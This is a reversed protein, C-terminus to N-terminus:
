DKERADQLFKWLNTLLRDVEGLSFDYQAVESHTRGIPSNGMIKELIFAERESLSVAYVTEAKKTVFM